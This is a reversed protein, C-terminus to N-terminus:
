VEDPEGDKELYLSQDIVEFYYPTDRLKDNMYDLAAYYTWDLSDLIDLMEDEDLTGNELENLDSFILDLDVEFGFTKNAVSIVSYTFDHVSSHSGDEWCGLDADTINTMSLYYCVPRVGALIETFYKRVDYHHAPGAARALRAGSRIRVSVGQPVQNQTLRTQREVVLAVYM